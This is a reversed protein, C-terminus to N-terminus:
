LWPPNQLYYHGYVDQLIAWVPSNPDIFHNGHAEIVSGVSFSKGSAPSVIQFMAM